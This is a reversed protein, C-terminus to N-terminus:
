FALSVGLAALAGGIFARHGCLGAPGARWARPCVERMGTTPRGHRGTRPWFFAPM